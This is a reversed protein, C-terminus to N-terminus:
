ALIVMLNNLPQKETEVNYTIIIEKVNDLDLIM